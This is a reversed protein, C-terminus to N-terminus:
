EPLDVEDLGALRRLERIKRALHRRAREFVQAGGIAPPHNEARLEFSYFRAIWDEGLQEWVRRAYEPGLRALTMWAQSTFAIREGLAISGVIHEFHEESFAGSRVWDSATFGFVRPENGM